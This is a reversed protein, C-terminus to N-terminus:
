RFSLDEQVYKEPILYRQHTRDCFMIDYDAVYWVFWDSCDKILEMSTIQKNIIINYLEETIHVELFLKDTPQANYPNKKSFLDKITVKDTIVRLERVEAVISYRNPTVHTSINDCVYVIDDARYLGFYDRLFPKLHYDALCRPCKNKYRLM